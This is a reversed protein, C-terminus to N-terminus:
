DEAKMVYEPIKVSTKNKNSYYVSFSKLGEIYTNIMVGGSKPFSVTVKDMFPIDSYDTKMKYEKSEGDFEYMSGLLKYTKLFDLKTEGYMAFDTQTAVYKNKEKDFSILYDRTEIRKYYSAYEIKEYKLDLDDVTYGDTKIEISQVTSSQKNEVDFYETLYSDYEVKKESENKTAAYKRWHVTTYTYNKCDSWEFREQWEKDSVKTLENLQEELSKDGNGDCGIVGMASVIFVAVAMLVTLVKRM